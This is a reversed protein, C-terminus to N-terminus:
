VYTFTGKANAQNTVGGYNTVGIVGASTLTVRYAETMAPPILSIIFSGIKPRYGDPITATLVTNTDAPLDKFGDFDIQKVDGIKWISIDKRLYSDSIKITPHRKITDSIPREKCNTNPVITAGENIDQTAEYLVGNYIFFQGFLYKQSATSTSEIPAIMQEDIESKFDYTTETTTGASVNKVPIIIQSLAPM